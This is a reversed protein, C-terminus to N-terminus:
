VRQVKWVRRFHLGAQLCQLFEMVIVAVIEFDLAWGPGALEHADVLHRVLKRKPERAQEELTSIALPRHQFIMRLERAIWMELIVNQEVFIKVPVRAPTNACGM